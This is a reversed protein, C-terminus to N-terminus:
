NLHFLCAHHLTIKGFPLLSRNPLEQECSVLQCYYSLHHHNNYHFNTNSSVSSDEIELSPKRTKLNKLVLITIFYEHTCENSQEDMYPLGFLSATEWMCWVKKTNIQVIWFAIPSYLLLIISEFFRITSYLYGKICNGNSLFIPNQTTGAKTQKHKPRCTILKHTSM